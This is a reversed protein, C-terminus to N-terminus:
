EAVVTETLECIRFCVVHSKYWTWMSILDGSLVDNPSYRHIKKRALIESITERMKLGNSREFTYDWVPRWSDPLDTPFTCDYDTDSM